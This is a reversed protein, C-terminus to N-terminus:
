KKMEKLKGKYLQILKYAASAPAAWTGTEDGKVAIGALSGNAAALPSGSMYKRVPIDTIVVTRYFHGLSSNDSYSHMRNFKGRKIESSVEVKGVTQLSGQSYRFKVKSENAQTPLYLKDGYSLCRENILKVPSIGQIQEDLRFLAVDYQRSAAVVDASYFKGKHLIAPSEDEPGVALHHMSSVAYGPSILLGVGLKSVSWTDSGAYEPKLVRGTMVLNESLKRVTEPIGPNEPIDEIKNSFTVKGLEIIDEDPNQVIHELSSNFNISDDAIKIGVIRLAERSMDKACEDATDRNQYYAIAGIGAAIGWFLIDKLKM